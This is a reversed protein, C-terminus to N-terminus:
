ISLRLNNYHKVYERFHRVQENGYRNEDEKTLNLTQHGFLKPKKRENKIRQVIEHNKYVESAHPILEEINEWLDQRCGTYKFAVGKMRPKYLHIIGDPINGSAGYYVMANLILQLIHYEEPADKNFPKRKIEVIAHRDNNKIVADIIATVYINKIVASFKIEKEITGATGWGMDSGEAEPIGLTKGAFRIAEGQARSHELRGEASKLDRELTSEEDWFKDVDMLAAVQSSSVSM